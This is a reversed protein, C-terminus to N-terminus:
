PKKRGEFRLSRTVASTDLTMVTANDLPVKTRLRRARSGFLGITNKGQITTYIPNIQDATIGGQVRTANMYNLYNQDAAWVFIDASDIYRIQGGTATPINAKFAPLFVGSPAELKFSSPNIALSAYNFDFSDIKLPGVGEETWYKFRVYGEYYRSANNTTVLSLYFPTQTNNQYFSISYTPRIFESIYFSGQPQSANTDVVSTTASDVDGTLRHQIILRYQNGAVLPRDFKYALNPTNFFIGSQKPSLTDITLPFTVVTGNSRLERMFVDLNNYFSSDAVKAMELASKNQSLFAKQIRIHQVPEGMDMLGYVVTIEKYPAAVDFDESCSSMSFATIVSCLGLLIKKM